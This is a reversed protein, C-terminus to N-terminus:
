SNKKDSAILKGIKQLYKILTEEGIDLDIATMIVQASKTPNKIDYGELTNALQNILRLYNNETRPHLKPETCVTKIETKTEYDFFNFDVGDINQEKSKLYTMLSKAWRNFSAKDSTTTLFENRTRTNINKPNDTMLQYEAFHEGEVEESERYGLHLKADEIMKGLVLDFKPPSKEILKSQPWEGPDHGLILLTAETLTYTNRIKWEALNKKM